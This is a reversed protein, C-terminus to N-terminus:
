CVMFNPKKGQSLLSIAQNEQSRDGLAQGCLMQKSAGLSGLSAWSQINAEASTAPM